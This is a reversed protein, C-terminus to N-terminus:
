EPGRVLSYEYWLGCVLAIWSSVGTDETETCAARVHNGSVTEKAFLANTFDTGYGNPMVYPVGAKAGAQVLKSQTDPLATVSLTIILFQQDQLAAVLTSTDNYDVQVSRVDQPLKM